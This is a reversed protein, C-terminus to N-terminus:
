RQIMVPTGNKIELSITSKNAIKSFDIGIYELYNGANDDTRVDLLKDDKAITFIIEISAGNALSKDLLNEGWNADGSSTSYFSTLTKGTNNVFKITKETVVPPPPTQAKKLIFDQSGETAKPWLIIRTGNKTGGGSAGLYFGNKAIINAIGKSNIKIEFLQSDSGTYRRQELESGKKANTPVSIAKDSHEAKISYYKGVKEIIFKQNSAGNSKYLIISAGDDFSSSTVDFVQATNLKSQITYTGNEPGTTVEPTVPKGKIIAYAEDLQKQTFVGKSMLETGLNYGTGKVTAFLSNYLVGAADGRTFYIPAVDSDLLGKAKGFSLSNAYTFDPSAGTDMYGLGRLVFTTMMQASANQALGFKGGGIGKTDGMETAYGIYPLAWHNAPVDTYPSAGKWARAAADEGLARIQFILAQERTPVDKLGFDTASYGEFLGLTKLARAITEQETPTYASAGLSLMGTLSIVMTLVILISLFRKSKKM